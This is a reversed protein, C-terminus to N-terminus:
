LEFHPGDFFNKFDGGWRIRVGVTKAAAKMVKAMAHFSQLDSWDLPVPVADFANSPTANHKSTPWKAKSKGTAVAQDQAAKGRHGCIVKFDFHKIAERAVKRLDPHCQELNKL